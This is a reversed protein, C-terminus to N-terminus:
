ERALTLADTLALLFIGGVYVLTMGVVEMGSDNLFLGAWAGVFVAIFAPCLEAFVSFRKALLPVIANFAVFIALALFNLPTLFFFRWLLELKRWVMEGLVVVGLTEIRQLLQGFHAKQESPLLSELLVLSSVAALSAVIARVAGGQWSPKPKALWEWAFAFGVALTLAGGFNAGWFSIGMLLPAIICWALMLRNPLQLLLWAFITGALVIGIGSNTIGFYRWGTTPYHGLPTAWYLQVGLLAILASLGCVIGAAKLSRHGIVLIGITLLMIVVLMQLANMRGSQHPLQAVVFLMAPISMGSVVVCFLLPALSYPLLRRFLFSQLVVLALIIAIFAVIITALATLDRFPQMSREDMWRLYAIRDVDLSWHGIGESVIRMISGTMQPSIPISLQSLLTPAFDVSSVLGLTRTTPSTLLGNPVSKGFLLIPTLRRTSWGTRPSNPVLLWLCADSPLTKVIQQLAPLLQRRRVAMFVVGNRHKKVASQEAGHRVVFRGLMLALDGDGQVSIQKGHQELWARLPPRSSAGVRTGAGLTAYVGKKGQLDLSTGSLLGVASKKLLTPVPEGMREFDGWTLGDCVVVIVQRATPVPQAASIINVFLTVVFLTAVFKTEGSLQELMKAEGFYTYRHHQLDNNQM